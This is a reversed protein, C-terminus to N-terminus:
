GRTRLQLFIAWQLSKMDQTMAAAKELTESIRHNLDPGRGTAVPAPPGTAGHRSRIGQAPPDAKKARRKRRRKQRPPVRRSGYGPLMTELVPRQEHAARTTMTGPVVTAVGYSQALRYVEDEDFSGAAWVPEDRAQRQTRETGVGEGDSWEDESSDLRQQQAEDDEGEEYGLSAPDAVASQAGPRLATRLSEAASIGPPKREARKTDKAQAGADGREPGTGSGDDGDGGHEDTVGGDPRVRHVTGPRRPRRM